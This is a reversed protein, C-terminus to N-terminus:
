NPINTDRQDEYRYLHPNIRKDVKLLLTFFNVLNEQDWVAPDNAPLAQENAQQNRINESMFIVKHNFAVGM